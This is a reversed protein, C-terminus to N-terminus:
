TVSNRINVKKAPYIYNKEIVPQNKGLLERFLHYVCILIWAAYCPLGATPTSFLFDSLHYLVNRKQVTVIHGRFAFLSDVEGM